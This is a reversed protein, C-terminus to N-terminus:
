LVNVVIAVLHEYAESIFGSLLDPDQMFDPVSGEGLSVTDAPAAPTQASEVTAEVSQEAVDATKEVEGLHNILESIDFQHYHEVGHEAIDKVNQIMAQLMDRVKLVMDTVDSDLARQGQRVSDLLNETKHALRNIEDLDVLASTGKITHFARFVANITEKDDPNQELELILNEISELHEFSEEIFGALLEKDQLFRTDLEKKEEPSPSEEQVPSDSGLQQIDTKCGMQQLYDIFKTTISQDEKGVRELEQMLAVCQGIHEYNDASDAIEGMILQGLAAHFAKAMEKLLSLRCNESASIEEALELLEGVASLDGPEVMMIKVAIDELIASISRASM